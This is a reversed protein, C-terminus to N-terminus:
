RRRSSRLRSASEVILQDQFCGRAALFDLITIVLPFIATFKVAAGEPLEFYMVVLWIQIGLAVLAALVSLRMQLIRVKFAVLAVASIAALISLIITFYPKALSLYSISEPGETGPVTCANGFFLALVLAASISLYLTQIRQWM